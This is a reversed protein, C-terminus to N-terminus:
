AWEADSRSLPAQGASPNHTATSHLYRDLDKILADVTQYRDEPDKKLM